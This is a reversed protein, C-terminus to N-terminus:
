QNSWTDRWTSPPHFAEVQEKDLPSQYPRMVHICPEGGNFLENNEMLTMPIGDHTDCVPPGCFGLEIGQKLWADFSVM